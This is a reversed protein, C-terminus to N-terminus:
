KKLKKIKSNEYKVAEQLDKYIQYYTEARIGFNLILSGEPDLYAEQNLITDLSVVKNWGWSDNNKFESNYEKIINPKSPDHSQVEVRYFYNSPTKNGRTLEMFVSLFSGEANNNGNPYVKARWKNGNITKKEFLIFKTEEEGLQSFRRQTEKFKTIKVQFFQYQPSIDNSVNLQPSIPKMQQYKKELNLAEDLIKPTEIIINPHQTAILRNVLHLSESVQEKLENLEKIRDIFPQISARKKSEFSSYMEKFIAHLELLLSNKSKELKSNIQLLSNSKTEISDIATNLLSIDKQLKLKIDAINHNEHFKHDSILEDFICESCLPENCDDCFYEIKKLHKKCIETDSYLLELFPLYEKISDILHLHVPEHDTNNASCNPCKKNQALIDKICNECGIKGCCPMIKPDCSKKNCIFCVMDDSFQQILSLSADKM